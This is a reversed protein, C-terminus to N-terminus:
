PPPSSESCDAVNSPADISDNGAKEALFGRVEEELGADALTLREGGGGGTQARVLARIEEESLPRLLARLVDFNGLAM